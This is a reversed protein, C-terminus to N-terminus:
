FLVIHTSTLLYKLPMHDTILIFKNNALYHHFHLVSSHIALLEKHTTSYRQQTESLVKSSFEVPRDNPIPHQSLVAGICENSSDVCLNFPIDSRPFMLVTPSILIQKINTFAKECSESWIFPVNKKTLIHLPKCIASFGPIFRRYYNAM